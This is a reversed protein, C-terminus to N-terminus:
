WRWGRRTRKEQQRRAKLLEEGWCGRWGVTRRGFRRNLTAYQSLHDLCLTAWIDFWVVDYRAGKPPQWDFLDAEIVVLKDPDVGQGELTARLHPTVLEIVNPDIEITTVRDVSDHLACLLSFMGLGLGGILVHGGYFRVMQRAKWHDRREDPSDSMWLRDNRYLQCITEGARVSGRGGYFMARLGSTEADKQTPTLHGVRVHGCSAGEPLVTHMRPFGDAHFEITM